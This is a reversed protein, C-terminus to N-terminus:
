DRKWTLVPAGGPGCEVRVEIDDGQDDDDREFEVRADHAPGSRVEGVAYGTAPSWNALTVEGGVCRALVRGGPSTLLTATPAGSSATPPPTAAPPTATSPTAASPSGAPPSGAPPNGAPPASPAPTAALARAVEGPDLPEDPNPGVLGQGILTVVALGAVTSAAAAALWGVVAATRRM